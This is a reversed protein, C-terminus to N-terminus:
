KKRRARKVESMPISIVLDGRGYNYFLASKVGKVKEIGLFFKTQAGRAMTPKGKAKPAM